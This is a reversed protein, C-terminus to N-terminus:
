LSALAKLKALAAPVSRGLIETAREDDHQEQELTKVAAALQKHLEDDAAAIGAQAAQLASQFAARDRSRTGNAAGQDQIASNLASCALEPLDALM